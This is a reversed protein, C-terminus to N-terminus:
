FMADDGYTRQDYNRRHQFGRPRTPEEMGELVHLLEGDIMASEPGWKVGTRETMKDFSAQMDEIATPSQIGAEALLRLAYDIGDAVGYAYRKHAFEEPKRKGMFGTHKIRLGELTHDTREHVMKVLAEALDM